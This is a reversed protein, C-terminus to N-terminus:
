LTSNLVNYLMSPRSGVVIAGTLEKGTNWDVANFLSWWHFEPDFRNAAESVSGAEVNQAANTVNKGSITVQSESGGINITVSEPSTRAPAHKGGSSQSGTAESRTEQDPQVPPYLNVSGVRAARQLVEPSM